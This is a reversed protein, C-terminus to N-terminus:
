NKSSRKFGNVKNLSLSFASFMMQTVDRWVNNGSNYKRSRERELRNRAVKIMQM